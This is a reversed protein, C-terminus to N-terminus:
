LVQLVCRLLWKLVADLEVALSMDLFIAALAGNYRDRGQM